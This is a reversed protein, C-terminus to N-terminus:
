LSCSEMVMLHPCLIRLPINQFEVCSCSLDKYTVCVLKHNVNNERLTKLGLSHVSTLITQRTMMCLELLFESFLSFNCGALDLMHHDLSDPRPNQFSLIHLLYIM